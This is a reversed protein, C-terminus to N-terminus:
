QDNSLVKDNPLSPSKCAVVICDELAEFDAPELPDIVLVDGPGLIHGGLRCKGNIVVTIETATLQFHSPETEGVKYSKVAVEVDTSSILTPDFNGVFWGNEFSDIRHLQM